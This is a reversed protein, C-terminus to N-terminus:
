GGAKFKRDKELYKLFLQHTKECDHPSKKKAKAHFDCLTWYWDDILIPKGKAGCLQCVKHSERETRAAMYHLLTNGGSLDIRLGGYKEKVNVKIKKDQNENYKDIEILVPLLLGYWGIIHEDLYDLHSKIVSM